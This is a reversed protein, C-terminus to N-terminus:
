NYEQCFKKVRECFYHFSTSKSALWKYDANQLIGKTIEARKDKSLSFRKGPPLEINFVDEKAKRRNFDPNNELQGKEPNEKKHKLYWLWYEISRVPIALISKRKIKHPYKKYFDDHCQEFSALPRDDFDIVAIFFELSYEDTFGVKAADAFHERVYKSDSSPPKIKCFAEQKEFSKCKVMKSQVLAPLSYEIFLEHEIDECLYGYIM